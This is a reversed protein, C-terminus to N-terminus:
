CKCHHSLTPCVQYQHKVKGQCKVSVPTPCVQYQHKVKGQCKVSVPTPCDQYQHKVIGQYQCKVSATTPCRWASKTSINSKEKVSAPIPCHLASSPEPHGWWATHATGPAGCSARWQAETGAHSWRGGESLPLSTSVKNGWLQNVHSNLATYWWAYLSLNESKVSM